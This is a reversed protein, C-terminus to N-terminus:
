LVHWCSHSSARICTYLSVKVLQIATESLDCCYVYLGSDSLFCILFLTLILLCDLFLLTFCISTNYIVCSVRSIDYSNDGYRLISVIVYKVILIRKRYNVMNGTHCLVYGYIFHGSVIRLM